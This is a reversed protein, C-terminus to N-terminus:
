SLPRDFVIFYLHRLGDRVTRLHPKRGGRRDPRLVTPVEAINAGSQAFRAIIETAFEMGPCRLGLSLAKERDFGRLGCHFDGVGAKFRWRALASLVPVDECAKAFTPFANVMVVFLAFCAALSGMPVSFLRRKKQSARVRKMAREVTTNLQEPLVELEALLSQYEMTRNM